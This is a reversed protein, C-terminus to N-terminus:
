NIQFNFYGKEHGNDDDGGNGNGYGDGDGYGIGVQLIQLIPTKETHTQAKDNANLQHEETFVLESNLFQKDEGHVQASKM